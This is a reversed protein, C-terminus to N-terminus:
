TDLNFNDIKEFRRTQNEGRYESGIRTLSAASREGAAQHLEAQASTRTGLEGSEAPSRRQTLLLQSSELCFHFNKAEIVQFAGPRLIKCTPFVFEANHSAEFGGRFFDQVRTGLDPLLSLRLWHGVAVPLFDFSL